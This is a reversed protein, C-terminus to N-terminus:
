ERHWWLAGDDGAKGLLHDNGAKGIITDADVTGILKNNKKNGNIIAM